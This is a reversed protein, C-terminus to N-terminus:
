LFIVELLLRTATVVWHLRWILVREDDMPMQWKDIVVSKVVAEM